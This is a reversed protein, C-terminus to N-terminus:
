FFIFRKRRAKAAREAEEVFGRASDPPIVAVDKKMVEKEKGEDEKQKGEKKGGGSFPLAKFLGVKGNSSPFFLQRDERPIDQFRDYRTGELTLHCVRGAGLWHPSEGYRLYKMRAKAGRKERQRQRKDTSPETTLAYLERCPPQANSSGFQILNSWPFGGGNGGDGGGGAAISADVDGTAPTGRQKSGPWMLLSLEFTKPVPPPFLLSVLKPAKRTVVPGTGQDEVALLGGSTSEAVMHLHGKPSLAYSIAQLLTVAKPVVRPKARPSPRFTLM